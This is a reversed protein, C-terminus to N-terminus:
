EIEAEAVVVAASPHHADVAVAEEKVAEVTQLVAPFAEQGALHTGREMTVDRCKRQSSLKCITQMVGM